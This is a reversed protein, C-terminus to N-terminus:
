IGQRAHRHFFDLMALFGDSAKGRLFSQLGGLSHDLGAFYRLEVFVVAAHRGPTVPLTLTGRMAHGDYSALEIHIIRASVAADQAQVNGAAVVAGLLAAAPTKVRV